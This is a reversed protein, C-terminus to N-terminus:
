RTWYSSIRVLQPLDQIKQCQNNFIPITWSLWMDRTVLDQFIMSHGMEEGPVVFFWYFSYTTLTDGFGELKEMWNVTNDHLSPIWVWLCNFTSGTESIWWVTLQRHTNTLLRFSKQVKFGFEGVCRLISPWWQSTTITQIRQATQAWSLEELRVRDLVRGETKVLFFVILGLLLAAVAVGM